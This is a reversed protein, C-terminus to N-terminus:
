VSAQAFRLQAKEIWYRAQIRDSVTSEDLVGDKIPPMM